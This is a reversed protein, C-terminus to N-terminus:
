STGRARGAPVAGSEQVGALAALSQVFPVVGGPLTLEWIKTVLNVQEEPNLVKEALRITEEDGEKGLGAAILMPIFDPVAIIDEASIEKARGTVALRIAPASGFLKALLKLSVGCVELSQGRIEVQATAPLIDALSAM